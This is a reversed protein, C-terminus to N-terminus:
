KNVVHTPILRGRASESPSGVDIGGEAGLFRTNGKATISVEYKRTCLKALNTCVSTNEQGTTLYKKKRKMPISYTM